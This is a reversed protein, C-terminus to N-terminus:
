ASCAMRPAHAAPDTCSCVPLHFPVELFSTRFRQPSQQLVQHHLNQCSSHKISRCIATQDYPSALSVHVLCKPYPVESARVFVQWRREFNKTHSESNADANSKSPLSRTAPAARRKSIDDHRSTYGGPKIANKSNMCSSVFM